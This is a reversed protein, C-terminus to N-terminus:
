PTSKLFAILDAMQQHDIAQELGEPMLSLTSARISAIESRTINKEMGQAQLLTIGATSESRIIGAHSEGDRTEIEYNTFRPEIVSNPDLIAALLDRANKNRYVELQPGVDVGVGGVAHCSACNQQFVSRGRIADGNLRLSKGYDKVIQVRSSAPVPPILKLGRVAIKQDPRRSIRLRSLHDIEAASVVGSEVADLLRVIWPDRRILTTVVERRVVPSLTPWAKLLLDPIEDGSSRAMVALADRQLELPHEPM